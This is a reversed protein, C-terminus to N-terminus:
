QKDELDPGQLVGQQYGEVVGRKYAAYENPWNKRVWATLDHRQQHALRVQARLGRSIRRNKNEGAGLGLCFAIVLCTAVLGILALPDHM